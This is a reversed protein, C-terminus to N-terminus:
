AYQHTVSVNAAYFAGVSHFKLDETIVRNETINIRIGVTGINRASEFRM